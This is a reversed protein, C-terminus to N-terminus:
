GAADGYDGTSGGAEASGDGKSEGLLSGVDDGGAAADFVDFVDTGFDAGQAAFGEFVDGVDAVAVGDIGEAVCDEFFEAV